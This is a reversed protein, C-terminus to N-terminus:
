RGNCDRGPKIRGLGRYAMRPGRHDRNRSPRVCAAGLWQRIVGIGGTVVFTYLFEIEAMNRIDLQDTWVMMYEKKTIPIIKELLTSQGHVGLLIRCLSANNAICQMIESIIAHTNKLTGAEDHRAMAARVEDILENEIQHMLDYPDQYHLYFTGRNVDARECIDKVTIKNIPATQMLELLSDRLVMKTYRVRRDVKGAAM